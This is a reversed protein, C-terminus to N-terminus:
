IMSKAVFGVIFLLRPPRVFHYGSRSVASKALGFDGPKVTEGVVVQMTTRLFSNM